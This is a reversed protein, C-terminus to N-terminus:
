HKRISVKKYRASTPARERLRVLVSTAKQLHKGETELVPEFHNQTAFLYFNICVFPSMTTQAGVLRFVLSKKFVPMEPNLFTRITPNNRLRIESFRCVKNENGLNKSESLEILIQQFEFALVM